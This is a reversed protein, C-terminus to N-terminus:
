KDTDVTVPVMRMSVKGTKEYALGTPFARSNEPDLEANVEIGRIGFKRVPKKFTYKEGGVLEVGSDSFDNLAPNFMWLNYKNDGIGEPLEISTVMPGHDIFYDYGVAIVPDVWIMKYIITVIIRIYYTVKGNNITIKVPLIPNSATAGLGLKALREIEKLDVDQNELLIKIKPLMLMKNHLKTAKIIQPATGKSGNMKAIGAVKVTEIMM